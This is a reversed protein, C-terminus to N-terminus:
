AAPLSLLLAAQGLLRVSARVEKLMFIILNNFVAASVAGLTEEVGAETDGYHCAVRFAQEANAWLFKM